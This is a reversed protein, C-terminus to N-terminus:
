SPNTGDKRHGFHDFLKHKRVKKRLDRYQKQLDFSVHTTIPEVGALLQAAVLSDGREWAAEAEQVAALVSQTAAANVRSAYKESINALFRSTPNQKSAGTLANRGSELDSRELAAYAEGLSQLYDNMQASRRRAEDLSDQVATSRLIRAPQNEILLVTEEFQHTALLEKAQKLVGDIEQETSIKRQKARELLRKVPVDSSEAITSLLDIAADYDGASVLQEAKATIQETREDGPNRGSEAHAFELLEEIEPSWSPTNRCSELIETAHRYDRDALAQNARLLADARAKENSVEALHQEIGAELGKLRENGPLERLRERALRLSEEPSTYLMTRCQQVTEEITRRTEIDRLQKDAAAKLKVLYPDTPYKDFAQQIAESVEVLQDHNAALDLDRQLKDVLRRREAQEKGTQATKLLPIFEVNSPDIREIENLAEMAESYRRAALDTRASELLARVKKERAIEEAERILAQYAARLSSDEKDLDMAQAIMSQARDIEGKLRVSEAERVFMDIRMRINKKEKAAELAAPLETSSPELKLAQELYGIAQDYNRDRIDDEARLKLQQVEEARQRATLTKQVQAMLRRAATNHADMKVVKVLVNFADRYQQEQVLREAQQFMEAVTEKKLEELVNHLDAAMEDATPYRNAVDNALSREVIEDLATPYGQIYKTLPPPSQSLIQQVVSYDDGAFPLHGTILQYLVVGTSFIDSRGDFPDSRLREPAMYQITGIINGTRTLNLENKNIERAIGFDLLKAVGNPQVMINAPKVDRHIVDNEHAYALALCVQEVISLKSALSIERSSKIIKDLPEGSVYEMVIYPMGDQEALLYVTVINPHKLIGTKSAEHYFRQLMDANGVLGETITKIAVERGLTKDIARYVLGMGGRGLIDVVEYRGIRSINFSSM